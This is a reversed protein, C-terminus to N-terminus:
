FRKTGNSASGAKVAEIIMDKAVELNDKPGKIEIAESKSQDKPVNIRCGTRKRIANIQSGGPGIVFRYTKPDPLILYGVSSPQSAAAIAKELAAKAKAVNDQSGSLVWSINGSQSPDSSEATTEVIKWSHNDIGPAADDTILPLSGTDQTGNRSDPTTSRPPIQEGAHDVTVQYDNRLRRFFGGNDSIIHHLRKPVQVTAGQQDALISQIHAIAEEVSTSGGKVRVDTRGSGQKPVDLTVNFKNEIERRSDGGRGILFRHQTVPIDLTNSVQDAKQRVFEEITSILNLVVAEKGELRITTEPSDARPFKVVRAASADDPGGCEIIIRRINAGGGGILAKHHKKEVDITRTITEDFEKARQLLLKKADEVQKKTGKIKIDVRGTADTGEAPGPVDIQAGTELRVKDMERGRQGILSPIQDRAVSVSSSHSHDMAYQFLSLIEDRAGDAGKKPGRVIVEDPAQNSRGNRPGGVESGTDAVSQDDNVVAARPFQVRVGYRDQLRNVQTGKQGILDRHYQPAIKLVYTAEDELKKGLAVIRSKAADAKAKPGKVEVKGNEVKIDVDFEDRLKNINEGKRGILFNAFKQPYDFTVTYGRELDDKQQELVFEQIKAALDEVDVTRGRLAAEQDSVKVAVPIFGAEKGQQERTVFKRLKDHYKVPVPVHKALVENPDGVISHLYAQADKLAKAYKASEDNSPRHKLFPSQADIEEPGEYALVAHFINDEQPEDPVVLHVGFNDKLAPIGTNRLYGHLYSDLPISTLKAPPHAQILNMIDSRARITNKGDRSYVEWTVPADASTLPLVIHSDHIKELHQIVKRNQLYSTFAKAHIHSGCPANLHQRSLDISAMQMSTALDMARNVGNEIQAAPGTVTLFETEDSPPPLVIACGTAALFEHLSDGKDGLIFQHQGRNIALQRVTIQRQLEQARRELHVRAEQAANREGCVLIHYDPDPSYRVFGDSTEQPPPRQAWTNYSPVKIQTKTFEELKNVRSNHVGAIFPFLEPPITKVKLNINSSREKVRAEIERRAMEAAVADGEILIDITNEEDDDDIKSDDPRPVHIRAGTREHIGQIVAGQRGIIHPRASAPVPVRVSQMSGVTQAVEKLAQRVADVNGTGEFIYSGGPGERVDIRAKSKKSIDRVIDSIPRKLQSRPIMQSSAFRLQEVHKGPMPLIRPGGHPASPPTATRPAIPPHNEARKGNADSTSPSGSKVAGWAVSASPRPKSGSGLAPFSEESQVDLPTVNKKAPKQTPKEEAPTANDAPPKIESNATYPLDYEEPMDEITVSSHAGQTHKEELAEAPSKSISPSGNVIMGPQSSM